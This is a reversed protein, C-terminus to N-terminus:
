WRVVAAAAAVVVVVVVCVCVCVCVCVFTPVHTERVLKDSIISNLDDVSAPMTVRHTVTAQSDV